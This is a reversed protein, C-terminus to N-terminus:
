ADLIEGGQDHEVVFHHRGPRLWDVHFYVPNTLDVQTSLSTVSHANAVLPNKYGTCALISSSWNEEYHVALKADVLRQEHEKLPVNGPPGCVSRVLGDLILPSLVDPPDPDNDKVFTLVERM